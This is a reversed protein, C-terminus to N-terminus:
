EFVGTHGLCRYLWQWSRQLLKGWIQFANSAYQEMQAGITLSQLQHFGCQQSSAGLVDVKMQEPSTQLCSDPRHRERGKIKIYKKDHFQCVGCVALQVCQVDSISDNCLAVVGETLYCCKDQFHQIAGQIVFYKQHFQLMKWNLM